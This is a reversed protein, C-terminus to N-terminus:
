LYADIAIANADDQTLDAAQAAPGGFRMSVSLAGSAAITRTKM